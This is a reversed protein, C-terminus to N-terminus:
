LAAKAPLCYVPMKYPNALIKDQTIGYTEDSFNDTEDICIGIADAGMNYAHEIINDRNLQERVITVRDKINVLLLPLMAISVAEPESMLNIIVEGNFYMCFDDLEVAYHELQAADKFVIYMKKFPAYDKGQVILFPHYTKAVVKYARSGFVSQMGIIGHTGMIILSSDFKSAVDNFAEYITGHSIVPKLDANYHSQLGSLFNRMDNKTKQIIEQYMREAMKMVAPNKGAFFQGTINEDILHVAIIETTQNKALECAYILANYSVPTFDVAVLITKKM